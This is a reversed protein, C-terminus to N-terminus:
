RPRDTEGCVYSMAPIAISCGPGTRASDMCWERTAAHDTDGPVPNPRDLDPLYTLSGDAKEYRYTKVVVPDTGEADDTLADQTSFIVVDHSPNAVAYVNGASGTDNGLLGGTAHVGVSGVPASAAEPRKSIEVTTEGTRLYLQTPRVSGAGPHPSVFLVGSGDSSVSNTYEWQAVVSNSHIGGSEPGDGASLGATASGDPDVTGDPLVGANSLQGDQWRYLAWNTLPTRGIADDVPTLTGRTIFYATSLDDSGGVPM